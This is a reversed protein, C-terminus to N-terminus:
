KDRARKWMPAGFSMTDRRPVLVRRVGCVPGRGAQRRNGLRCLTTFSPRVAAVARGMPVFARAGTSSVDMEFLIPSPALGHTGTLYPRVARRDPPKSVRLHRISRSGAVFRASMSDETLSLCPTEPQDASRVDDPRPSRLDDDTVRHCGPSRHQGGAPKPVALSLCKRRCRCVSLDGATMVRREHGSCNGEAVWQEGGTGPFPTRRPRDRGESRPPRGSVTRKDRDTRVIRLM